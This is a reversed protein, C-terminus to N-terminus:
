AATIQIARSVFPVARGRQVTVVPVDRHQVAVGVPADEVVVPELVLPVGVVPEQEDAFRKM